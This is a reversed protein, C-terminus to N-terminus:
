RFGPQQPPGFGPTPAPPPVAAPQQAPPKRPAPKRRVPPPPPPPALELQAFVPNPEIRTEDGVGADPLDASERVVMVSVSVTQPLYGQLSFTVSSVGSAPL